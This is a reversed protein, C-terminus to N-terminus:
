SSSFNWINARGHKTEIYIVKKRTMKTRVAKAGPSYSGSLYLQAVM